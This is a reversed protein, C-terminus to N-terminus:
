KCSLIGGDTETGLTVNALGISAAVVFGASSGSPDDNIIYYANTCRVM